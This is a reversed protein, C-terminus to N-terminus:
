YDERKKKKKMRSYTYTPAYVKATPSPRDATDKKDCALLLLLLLCFVRALEVIFLTKRFSVCVCVCVCVAGFYLCVCM